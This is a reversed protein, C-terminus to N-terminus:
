FVQLKILIKLCSKCTFYCFKSWFCVRNYVVNKTYKFSKIISCRLAADCYM